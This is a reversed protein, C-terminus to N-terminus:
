GPARMARMPADRELSVRTTDKHQQELPREHM